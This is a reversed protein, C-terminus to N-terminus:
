KIPRGGRAVGGLLLFVCYSRLNEAREKKRKEDVCKGKPLNPGFIGLIGKNNDAASETADSNNRGEQM